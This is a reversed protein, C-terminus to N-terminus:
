LTDSVTRVANQNVTLCIPAWALAELIKIPNKFPVRHTAVIRPDPEKIGSPEPIEM